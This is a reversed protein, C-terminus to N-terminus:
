PSVFKLLTMFFRPSPFQYQFTIAWRIPPLLEDVVQPMMISVTAGPRGVRVEGTLPVFVLTLVGVKVQPVALSGAGDLPM